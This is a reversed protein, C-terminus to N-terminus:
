RVVMWGYPRLADLQVKIMFRGEKFGEVKGWHLFNMTQPLNYGGINLTNPNFLEPNKDEHIIPEESILNKPVNKVRFIIETIPENHYNDAKLRLSQTLVTILKPIDKRGIKCAKSLTRYNGSEFKVVVLLFIQKAMFPHKDFINAFEKIFNTLLKSTLLSNEVKFTFDSWTYNMWM